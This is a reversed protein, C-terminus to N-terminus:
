GTMAEWCREWDLQMVAAPRELAAVIPADAGLLGADLLEGASLWRLTQGEAGRPTGSWVLVRWVYLQLRADARGHTYTVLHRALRLEIDLEERLERRLAALPAEGELLKGGPFEWAGALAKGAPRQSILVQGAANGLVGM